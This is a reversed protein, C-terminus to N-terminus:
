IKFELGQVESALNRVEFYTGAGLANKAPKAPAFASLEFLDTGNSTSGLLVDSCHEWGRARKAEVEGSL